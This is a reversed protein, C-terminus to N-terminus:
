GKSNLGMLFYSNLFNKKSNKIHEGNNAFFFKIETLVGLFLKKYGWVVFWLLGRLSCKQDDTGWFVWVLNVM